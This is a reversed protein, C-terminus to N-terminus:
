PSILPPVTARAWVLNVTGVEMDIMVFGISEPAESMFRYVCLVDGAKILNGQWDTLVM